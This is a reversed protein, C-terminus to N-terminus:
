SFSFKVCGWIGLDGFEELDITDNSLWPVSVVCIMGNPSSLCDAWSIDGFLLTSITSLNSINFSSFIIWHWDAIGGCENCITCSSSSLVM